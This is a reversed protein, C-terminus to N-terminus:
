PSNSPLRGFRTSILTMPSYTDHAPGVDQRHLPTATWPSGMEDGGLEDKISARQEFMALPGCPLGEIEDGGEPPRRGIVLQSKGLTKEQSPWGQKRCSALLKQYARLTRVEATTANRRSDLQLVPAVDPTVEPILVVVIGTGKPQERHSPEYDGCLIHGPQETPMNRPKGSWCTLNRRRLVAAVQHDAAPAARTQGDRHPLRPPEPRRLNSPFRGLRTSVLTM